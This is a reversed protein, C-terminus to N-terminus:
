WFGAIISTTLWIFIISDGDELEFQRLLNDKTRSLTEAPFNPDARRLEIGLIMKNVNMSYISKLSKIQDPDFDFLRAALGVVKHIPLALSLPREVRRERHILLIRRSKIGNLLGKDKEMCNIDDKEEKDVFLINEFLKLNLFRQAIWLNGEPTGSNGQTTWWGTTNLISQSLAVRSFPACGALCRM